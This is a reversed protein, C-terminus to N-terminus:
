QLQGPPTLGTVRGASDYTYATKLAPSIRPDWTERLRGTKDYAYKAVGTVTSSAAGPSTAWVRIEAVQDKFDGFASSTTTTSSAYVFELVRCGKTVPNAECTGITVASTAATIRKPRALVKGNVTVSESVVETTSNAQGDVLSRRVTWDAGYAAQPILIM